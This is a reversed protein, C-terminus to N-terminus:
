DNGNLIDYITKFQNSKGFNGLYENKGHEEWGDIVSGIVSTMESSSDIAISRGNVDIEIIVWKTSYSSPRVKYRDGIKSM